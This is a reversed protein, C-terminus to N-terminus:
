RKGKASGVPRKADPGDVDKVSQAFDIRVDAMVREFDGAGSYLNLAVWEDAAGERCKGYVSQFYGRMTDTYLKEAAASSSPDARAALLADAGREYTPKAIESDPDAYPLWGAWREVEVSPSPSLLLHAEVKPELVENSLKPARDFYFVHSCFDAWNNLAGAIVIRNRKSAWYDQAHVPGASAAWALGFASIIVSASM